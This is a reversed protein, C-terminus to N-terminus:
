PSSPLGANTRKDRSPVSRFFQSTSLAQDGSPGISEKNVRFISVKRSLLTYCPGLAMFNRVHPAHDLQILLTM